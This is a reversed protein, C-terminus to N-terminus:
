IYQFLPVLITLSSFTSFLIRPVVGDDSDDSDSDNDREVGNNIVQDDDDVLEQLKNPDSIDVVSIKPM